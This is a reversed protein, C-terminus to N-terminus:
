KGLLLPVREIEWASLLRRFPIDWGQTSWCEQVTVEPDVYFRFLDPFAEKLSTEEIWRARWFKARAGNGIKLCINAEMSKWLNRIRRWMGMGYTDTVMETCWPSTEGYKTVIVEKLLVRDETIYRWLCKLLLSENQLSM